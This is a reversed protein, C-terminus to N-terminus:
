KIFSKTRWRCCLSIVVEDSSESCNRIRLLGNLEGHILALTDVALVVRRQALECKSGNRGHPSTLGDELNDELDVDVTDELDGGSLLGRAARGVDGNGVRDALEGSALDLLHDATHKGSACVHLLCSHTWALESCVSLSELAVVLREALLELGLLLKLRVNATDFLNDGVRGQGEFELTALLLLDFAANALGHGGQLEGIGGSLVQLLLLQGDLPQNGLGHGGSLPM